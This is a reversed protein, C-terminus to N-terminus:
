TTKDTKTDAFYVKELVNTSLIKYEVHDISYDAYEPSNKVRNISDKFFEGISQTLNQGDWRLAIRQNLDKDMEPTVMKGGQGYIDYFYAEEQSSAYVGFSGSKLYNLVSDTYTSEAVLVNNTIDM